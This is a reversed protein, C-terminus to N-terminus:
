AHPSSGREWALLSAPLCAPFRRRNYRSAAPDGGSRRYHRVDLRRQLTRPPRCGIGPLM